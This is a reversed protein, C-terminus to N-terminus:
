KKINNKVSASKVEVIGSMPVNLTVPEGWKLPELAKVQSESLVAKNFIFIQANSEISFTKETKGAMKGILTM